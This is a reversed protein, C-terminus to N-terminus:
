EVPLNTKSSINELNGFVNIKVIIPIIIAIPIPIGSPIIDAVLCYEAISLTLIIPAKNPTEIGFKQNPSINTKVNATLKLNTGDPPNSEQFLKINGATVNFQKMDFAGLSVCILGCVKSGLVSM